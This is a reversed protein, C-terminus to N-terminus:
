KKNKKKNKVKNKKPLVKINGNHTRAYRNNADEKSPILTGYYIKGRWKWSVKTM